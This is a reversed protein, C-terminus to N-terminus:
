CKRAPQSQNWAKIYLLANQNIIGETGTNLTYELAVAFILWVSYFNGGLSNQIPSFLYIATVIDDDFWVFTSKNRTLTHQM